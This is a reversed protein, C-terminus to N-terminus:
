ATKTAKVLGASVLAQVTAAVVKAILQQEYSVEPERVPPRYHLADLAAASRANAPELVHAYTSVEADTLEVVSKRTKDYFFSDIQVQTVVRTGEDRKMLRKRHLALGKRVRFQLPEIDTEDIMQEAVNTKAM